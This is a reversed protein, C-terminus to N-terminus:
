NYPWNAYIEDQYVVGEAKEIDNISLASGDSGPASAPVPAPAPASEAMAAKEPTAAPAQANGADEGGCASLLLFSSIMMSSLILPKRITM